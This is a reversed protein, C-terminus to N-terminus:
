LPFSSVTRSTDPTCPAHSENPSKYLVQSGPRRHWPFLCLRLLRSALLVSAGFLSPSGRLLSSAPYHGHLLPPLDDVNLGLWSAVPRAGHKLRSAAAKLRHCSGSLDLPKRGSRHAARPAIGRASEAPAPAPSPAQRLRHYPRPVRTPNLRYTEGCM